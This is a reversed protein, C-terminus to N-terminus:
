VNMGKKHHTKFWSDSLREAKSCVGTKFPSAKYEGNLLKDALELLKRAANEANWEETMIKYANKGMMAREEPHDLLWKVKNYLDEVNGDEYILGNEGHEILFPVSGIAHGAVVACASNMSENLVAGWGENRDSTFLFIESKEMHERVEHPKMSGLMEVNNTLGKKEILDKIHEELVGTGIMKLKFDYGDAILREAVELALEPHKWNIFRGAWLISAPDKGNIIEDVNDYSNLRTFYGWKYAKDLFTFTKAYDASTYASACLIYLNKHRMIRTANQVLWVLFIYLKPKKKYIRESYYFTLKKNKLRNNLLSKPASGIIVVDAEDILKQCIDSNEKSEYSKIVFDPTDEGGWGMKLREERIPKTAVFRFQGKTLENMAESFPAQHHNYFNSVFVVKM